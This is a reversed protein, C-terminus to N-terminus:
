LISTAMLSIAVVAIVARLRGPTQVLSLFLVFYTMVKTLETIEDLANDSNVALSIAAFIWMWLMLTVSPHKRVPDANFFRVLRIASFLLCAIIACYYIPLRALEPVLEGPRLFLVANVALFLTFNM